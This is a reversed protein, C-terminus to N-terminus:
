ASVPFETRFFLQLEGNVDRNADIRISEVNVLDVQPAYENFEVELAIRCAVVGQISQNGLAPKFMTTASIWRGWVFQADGRPLGLYTYHASMLINRVLRRARQAEFAAVEDAPDHGAVTEVNAGYGYCDLHFTATDLQREFRNSRSKDFSEGQITINVLPCAEASGVEPTERWEDWPMERETFVRLKYLNPDQAPDAAAALVQQNASEELLILGIQDRILEVSDQKDILTSIQATV